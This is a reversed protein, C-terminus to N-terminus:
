PVLRIMPEDIDGVAYIADDTLALGEVTIPTQITWRLDGTRADLGVVVGDDFAAVVDDDTATVDSVKAGTCNSIEDCTREWVVEGNAVRLSRVTGATSVYLSSGDTAFNDAIGQTRWVEVGADTYAYVHGSQQRALVGGPLAILSSVGWGDAVDPLDERWRIEGTAPDLASIRKSSGAFVTDPGVAMASPYMEYPLTWQTDGDAVAVISRHGRVVLRQPTPVIRHIGDDIDVTWATDGNSRDYARLVQDLGLLVDEDHLALLSPVPTSDGASVPATWREEGDTNVARLLQDDPRAVNTGYVLANVAYITGGAVVPQLYRPSYTDDDPNTPALEWDVRPTTGFRPGDPLYASNSPGRDPLPWAQVPLSEFDGGIAGSESGETTTRVTTTTATPSTTTETTATPPTTVSGTDSQCGALATATCALAQLLARRSRSPM